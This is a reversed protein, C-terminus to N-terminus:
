PQHEKVFDEIWKWVEQGYEEDYMEPRCRGLRAWPILFEGNMNLAEPMTGAYLQTLAGLSVPYLFFAAFTQFLKSMHRQLDSEINGPNVSISIIGKDAYRKAVQRAVIANGFKSQAYLTAPNMKARRKAGDNLTDFDVIGMYAASSSTTVVRAHHDPSSQAGATLAPMLLETFYWHGVVNTGWQLDLGEATLLDMPCAM